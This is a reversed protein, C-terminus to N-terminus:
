LAGLSRRRDCPGVDLAPDAPGGFRAACGTHANYNARRGSGDCTCSRHTSLHTSVLPDGGCGGDDRSPRLGPTDVANRTSCQLGGRSFLAAPGLSALTALAVAAVIAVVLAETLSRTVAGLVLAPLALASFLLLARLGRGAVSMPLPLHVSLQEVVDIAFIPTVVMLLVFVVKSLWVDRRRVPRTLWDQRIGPLPDQHVASITM